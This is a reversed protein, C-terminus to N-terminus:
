ATAPPAPSVSSASASRKWNRCCGSGGPLAAGGEIGARALVEGVAQPGARRTRTARWCRGAAIVNRPNTTNTCSTIAAIIVAGDPMLGEAMGRGQRTRAQSRRRHRTRRTREGAAGTRTRRAPWTACWARCTSICRASTSRADALDDAWLGATKAYTEVLAVQEDSRGTLRLYDLTNGDIFFMAATAGYEAGHQLDDRSRGITLAAAGEGSDLYAGVVKEKRLFETLALVIDTATIGPQPKGTLEVGVM